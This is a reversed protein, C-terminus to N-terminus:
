RPSRLQALDRQLEELSAAFPPPSAASAVRLRALMVAGCALYLAAMVAFAGIRHSDWYVVAVLATLALLAMHLFAAALVAMVLLQRRREYEERLEVGILAGRVCLLEGLAAILARLSGAIAGSAAPGPTRVDM